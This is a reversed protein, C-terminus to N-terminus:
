PTFGYRESEKKAASQRHAKSINDKRNLFFSMFTLHLKVLHSQNLQFPFPQMALQM